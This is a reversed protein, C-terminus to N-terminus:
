IFCIVEFESVLSLHSPAWNRGKVFNTFGFHLSRLSNLLQTPKPTVSILSTKFHFIDNQTVRIPMRMGGKTVFDPELLRVFQQSAHNVILRM